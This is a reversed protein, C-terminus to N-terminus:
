RARHVRPRPDVTSGHPEAYPPRRDAPALLYALSILSVLGLEIAASIVLRLALTEPDGLAAVAPAALTAVICAIMLDRRADRGFRVALVVAGALFALQTLIFGVQHLAGHWTMVPAGEPAGEPFGAGPDTPFVGAIILGLGMLIVLVGGVRALRSTQPLRRLALGGGAILLGTVVFNLVQLWGGEGLSLLSMPHYTPRFGDRTFAQVAWLAIFFPTAVVAGILLPRPSHWM